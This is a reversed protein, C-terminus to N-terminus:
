LIQLNNISGQLTAIDEETIITRARRLISFCIDYCHLVESFFFTEETIEEIFACDAGPNKVIALADVAVFETEM